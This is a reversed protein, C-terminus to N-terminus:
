YLTVLLFDSVRFAWSLFLFFVFGFVMHELAIKYLSNLDFPEQFITM